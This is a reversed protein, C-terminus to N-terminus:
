RVSVMSRPAIQELYNTWAPLLLDDPRHVALQLFPTRSRLMATDVVLNRPVDWAVVKLRLKDTGPWPSDHDGGAFELLSSRGDEFQAFQLHLLLSCNSLLAQEALPLSSMFSLSIVQPYYDGLRRAFSEQYEDRQIESLLQEDLALCVAGSSAIQIGRQRELRHADSFELVRAGYQAHELGYHYSCGTSFLLVASLFAFSKIRTTM